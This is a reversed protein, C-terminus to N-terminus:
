VMAAIPAGAPVPALEVVRVGATFRAALRDALHLSLRTKGVGGPGVLSVVRAEAMLRTLTALDDERGVLSTVPRRLRGSVPSPGATASGRPTAATSADQGARGALGPPRASTPLPAGSLVLAPVDPAPAGPAPEDPAPAGSASSGPAPGTPIPRTSPPGAPPSSPPGAPTPGPQGPTAPSAPDDARLAERQAARLRGGPRLGLEDLRDSARRYAALADASRGVARLALVLTAWAGERWPQQALLEESAAVADAPRDAALLLEARRELAADRAEALRVVTPRLAPSDAFEGFAPGRWSALAREVIALEEVPRATGRAQDLLDEFVAVDVRDRDLTLSWGGPHSRVLDSPRAANTPQLSAPQSAPRPRAQGLAGRLRSVHSRLSAQATPPPEDDWIADVLRAFPVVDGVRAGLIALVLRQTPSGLPVQRGADDVVEVPGLLRVRM